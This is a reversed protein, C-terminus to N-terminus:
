SQFSEILRQLMDQGLGILKGRDKFKLYEMDTADIRDNVDRLAELNHILEDKKIVEDEVLIELSEKLLRERYDHFDQGQNPSSLIGLRFRSGM